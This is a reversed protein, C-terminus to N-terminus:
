AWQARFQASAARPPRRETVYARTCFLELLSAFLGRLGHRMYPSALLACQVVDVHADKPGARAVLVGGGDCGRDWMRHLMPLVLWPTVGAGRALGVATGMLTNRAGDFTGRGALVQQEPSLGLADCAAYHAAAVDMPVWTAAVARLVAEKHEPALAREYEDFRGHRRVSAVSAILVTSRMRRVPRLPTPLALIIDVAVYANQV